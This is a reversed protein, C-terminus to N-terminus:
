KKAEAQLKKALEPNTLEIEMQKSLNFTAASWPNEGGGGGSGGKGPERGNEAFIRDTEKKVMRDLLGKFAKVRSDIASEDEGLILEVIALDPDSGDDLGAKRLAKIAYIRNEKDKLAKEREELDREREKDELAKREAESLKEKKLRELQERLKKNDNGLKNTARDVARQILLELDPDEKGEDGDDGGEEEKLGLKEILEDYQEQTITGAELMAKLQELTM